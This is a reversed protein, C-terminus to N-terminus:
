EYWCMGYKIPTFAAIKTTKSMNNYKNWNINDTIIEYNKNKLEEILKNIAFSLKRDKVEKKSQHIYQSTIKNSGRKIFIPTGVRYTLYHFRIEHPMTELILKKTKEIDEATTGPYDLILSIRVRYGLKKVNTIIKKTIDINFFKNMSNLIRSSGSEIGFHIWRFGVEYMKQFMDEDYTKLSALAGFLCNLNRKKIEECIELMRTKSVTANDDLFMIKKAHYKKILIEIEDVVQKPTKATWKGFFYPTTCFTCNGICGRSTIITRTDMYSKIDILERNPIPLNTFNSNVRKKETRYVKNDWKFVLNPIKLLEEKKDIYKIIKIIEPEAIGTILINIGNKLFEEQYYSSTKGIIITTAIVDKSINKIIEFINDKTETTHLPIHYDFVFILINKEKLYKNINNNMRNVDMDLVKVDKYEEQIVTAIQLVDIPEAVITKNTFPKNPPNIVLIRM